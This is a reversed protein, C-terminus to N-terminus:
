GEGFSDDLLQDSQGDFGRYVTQYYEDMYTGAPTEAGVLLYDAGTVTYGSADALDDMLRNKIYNNYVEVAPNEVIFDKEQEILDVESDHMVFSKPDLRIGNLYSVFSDPIFPETFDLDFNAIGTENAHWLAEPDLRFDPCAFFSGTMNLIDGQFVIRGGDNTYDINEYIKQGNFFVQKNTPDIESFGALSYDSSANIQLSQFEGSKLIDLIPSDILLSLNSDDQVVFVEEFLGDEDRAQPSFGGNDVFFKEKYDENVYSNLYGKQKAVGNVFLQLYEKNFSFDNEFKVVPFDPYVEDYYVGCFNNTSFLNVGQITEVFDSSSRAGLYTYSRPGYGLNGDKLVLPYVGSSSLSEESVLISQGTGYLPELEYESYLEGSVGSDFYLPVDNFALQIDEYGVGTAMGTIGYTPSDAIVARFIGSLGKIGLGQTDLVEELYEEGAGVTGYLYEGTVTEITEFEAGSYGTIIRQYGIIGSVINTQVQNYGTIYGPVSDFSQPSVELDYYFSQSIMMIDETSLLEDFHFFKDIYGACPFGSSSYNISSEGNYEGSGITWIKNTSLYSPDIPFDQDEVVEMSPDWTGLNIVGSSKNLRIVFINKKFPITNLVFNRKIGSSYSDFFLKNANNIGFEFGQKSTEDLCSFLVEVDKSNRTHSVIFTSDDEEFQESGVVKVVSSSNFFCGLSSYGNVFHGTASPNISLFEGESAAADSLDIGMGELLIHSNNADDISNIKGNQYSISNSFDYALKAKTTRAGSNLYKM